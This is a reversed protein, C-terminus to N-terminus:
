VTIGVWLKISNVLWRVYIYVREELTAFRYISPDTELGFIEANYAM